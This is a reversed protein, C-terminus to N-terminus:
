SFRLYATPEARLAPGGPPPAPPRVPPEYNSRCGTLTNISMHSDTMRPRRSALSSSATPTQSVKKKEPDARSTLQPRSCTRTANLEDVSFSRHRPWRSLGPELSPSSFGLESKRDPEHEQKDQLRAAELAAMNRHSQAGDQTRLPLLVVLQQLQAVHLRQETDREREEEVEAPLAGTSRDCVVCVSSTFLSSDTKKKLPLSVNGVGNGPGKVAEELGGAQSLESSGNSPDASPGLPAERITIALPHRQRPSQTSSTGARPVDGRESGSRSAWRQAGAQPSSGPPSCGSLLLIHSQAWLLLLESVAAQRARGGSKLFGSDIGKKPKLATLRGVAEARWSLGSVTWTRGLLVPSRLPPRSRKRGCLGRLGCGLFVSSHTEPESCLGPAVSLSRGADLHFEPQLKEGTKLTGPDMEDVPLIRGCQKGHQPSPLSSALLLPPPRGPRLLLPLEGATVAAGAPPRSSVRDRGRGLEGPNQM